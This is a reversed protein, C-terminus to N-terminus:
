RMTPGSDEEPENTKKEEKKKAAILLNEFGFSKTQKSIRSFRQEIDARLKGTHKDPVECAEFIQRWNELSSVVSDLLQKSKHASLGFDQGETLLDQRGINEHKGNVKLIQGPQYINPVIDYVPSLEWGSKTHLMAFNQLHDDTNRLMVNVVMQRYLLETDIDPQHSFWRVVEAMNSYNVEYYDEAGVMTKFSIMANRGGEQNVDFREILFIDRQGITHVEFDPVQLGAQRALGMGANELSAFLKPDPDKVSSLKALYLRGGKKTLAKPRAGGASSGCGLIHQLKGSNTDISEELLEAERIVRIIESFPMSADTLEPKKDQESYMLRGLGKNHLVNLLHVPQCRRLDLNGQRALLQRGWADPFSDEFVSHTGTYPNTAEFIKNHMLSLNVPDVPYDKSHNLYELDYHFYGKLQGPSNLNQSLIRGVKLVEGDSMVAYVFLNLENSYKSTM